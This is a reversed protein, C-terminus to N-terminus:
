EDPKVAGAAAAGGRRGVQQRHPPTELPPDNEEDGEQGHRPRIPPGKIPAERTGDRLALAAESENMPPRMWAIEGVEDGDDAAESAVEPRGTSDDTSEAHPAKPRVLERHLRGVEEVGDNGDGAMAVAGELGDPGGVPRRLRLAGADEPAEAGTRPILQPANGDKRNMGASVGEARAAVNTGDDVGDTEPPPIGTEDQNGVAKGVPLSLLAVAALLVIVKVGDEGRGAAVAEEEISETGFEIQKTAPRSGTPPEGDGTIDNPPRGPSGLPSRGM